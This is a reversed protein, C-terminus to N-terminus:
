PGVIQGDRAAGSHGVTKDHTHVGTIITYESTLFFFIFYEAFSFSYVRLNCADDDDDLLLLEINNGVNCCWRGIVLGSLEEGVGHFRVTVFVRWFPNKFFFSLLSM